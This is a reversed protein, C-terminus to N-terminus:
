HFRDTAPRYSCTTHIVSLTFARPGQNGLLTPRRFARRKLEGQM